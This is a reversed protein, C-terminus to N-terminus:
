GEGAGLSIAGPHSEGAPLGPRDLNPSVPRYTQQLRFAKSSAGQHGASEIMNNYVRSFEEPSAYMLHGLCALPTSTWAACSLALYWSALKKIM